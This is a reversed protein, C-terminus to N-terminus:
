SLILTTKKISSKKGFCFTMQEIHIEQPGVIYVGPVPLLVICLCPEQEGLTKTKYLFGPSLDQNM